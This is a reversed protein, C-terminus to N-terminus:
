LVSSFTSLILNNPDGIIQEPNTCGECSLSVEDM